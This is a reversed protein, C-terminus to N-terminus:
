ARRSSEQVACEVVKEASFSAKAAKLQKFKRFIPELPDSLSAPPQIPSKMM